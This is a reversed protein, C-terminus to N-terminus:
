NHGKFSLWLPSPTLQHPDLTSSLPNMNQTKTQKRFYGMALPYMKVLNSQEFPGSWLNFAFVVGM